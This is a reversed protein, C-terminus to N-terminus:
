GDLRHVTVGLRELLGALEAHERKALPLDVPHRFGHAPDDFARGFAEGPAKMLVQRLPATM